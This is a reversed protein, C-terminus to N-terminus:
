PVTIYFRTVPTSSSKRFTSFPSPPSSSLSRPSLKTFPQSSQQLYGFPILLPDLFSSPAAAKNFVLPASASSPLTVPPYSSHPLTLYTLCSLTPHFSRISPQTLYSTGVTPVQRTTSHYVTPSALCTPHPLLTRSSTGHATHTLTCSGAAILTLALEDTSFAHVWWLGAQTKAQSGYSPGPRHAM